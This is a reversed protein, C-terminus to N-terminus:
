GPPLLTVVLEYVTVEAPAPALGLEACRAAAGRAVAAVDGTGDVLLVCAEDVEEAADRGEATTSKAATAGADVAALHLGYVDPDTLVAPALDDTVWGQLGVPLQLVALRHGTSAGQSFLVSLVARHPRRFTAVVERTLPTPDDLRALYEASSFVATDRADYVTLHQQGPGESRVYRRGRLFGPVALREPLHEHVYWGAFRATDEPAVDVAYLMLARGALGPRRGSTWSNPVTM